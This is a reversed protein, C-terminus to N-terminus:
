PNGVGSAARLQQGAFIEIAAEPQNVFQVAHDWQLTAM